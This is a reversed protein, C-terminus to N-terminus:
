SNFFDAEWNSAPTKLFFEIDNAGLDFNLDNRMVNVIKLYNEDRFLQESNMVKFDKKKISDYDKKSLGDIYNNALKTKEAEAGEIETGKLWSPVNNKLGKDADTSEGIYGFSHLNEGHKKELYGQLFPYNQM